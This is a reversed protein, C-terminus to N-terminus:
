KRGFHPLKDFDSELKVASKSKSVHTWGRRANIEAKQHVSQKLEAWALSKAENLLLAFQEDDLDPVFSDAVTWAIIRKGYCDTKSGQLTTDVDSDYGDFIITHDDFCTYFNPPCRNWYLFNMSNGDVTHTFTGIDTDDENLNYMRDLFVEKALPTLREYRMDTDLATQKDYRVWLVESVTDPVTMLTPKSIDGSPILNFKSYHEPLKARTIMDFYASRIVTAVQMSEETDSISNVSDSDMSSLITQTLELLTYKM